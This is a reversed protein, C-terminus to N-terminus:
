ITLDQEEQIESGKSLIEAFLLVVIGLLLWIFDNPERQIIYGSFDFMTVNKIYILHNFILTVFYYVLLLIGIRRMYRINKKDFILENRLTKMLKFFLVPIYLAIFFVLFSLLIEIVQFKNISKGSEPSIAARVQAKDHRIKINEGTKLNTISDPFSSFSEKAKLDLFYTQIELAKGEEYGLKFDDWEQTFSSLIMICYALTALISLTTLRTKSINKMLNNYEIFQTLSLM